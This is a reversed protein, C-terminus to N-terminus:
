NDFNEILIIKPLPKMELLNDLYALIEIKNESWIFDPDEDVESFDDDFNEDFEEDDEDTESFDDDFDDEYKDNKEQQFSVVLSFNNIKGSTLIDISESDMWLAKLQYLIKQNIEKTDDPIYIFNVMQTDEVDYFILVHMLQNEYIKQDCLM